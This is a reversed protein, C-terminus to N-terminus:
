IALNPESNKLIDVSLYETDTFLELVLKQEAAKVVEEPLKMTQVVHFTLLHHEFCASM